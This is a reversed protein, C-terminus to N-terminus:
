TIQHATRNALSGLKSILRSALQLALIRAPEVGVDYCNQDLKSTGTGPAALEPEGTGDRSTRTCCKSAGLIYTASHVTIQAKLKIVLKVSHELDM